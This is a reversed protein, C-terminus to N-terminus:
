SVARFKTARRRAIVTLFLLGLGLLAVTDPELVTNVKLHMNGMITEPTNRLYKKPGTNTLEGILTLSLIFPDTFDSASLPPILDIPNLQVTVDDTNTVSPPLYDQLNIAPTIPTGNAGDLLAMERLIIKRTVQDPLLDFDTITFNITADGIILNLPHGSFYMNLILEGTSVVGGTPDSPAYFSQSGLVNIDGGPIPSLSSNSYIDLTASKGDLPIIFDPATISIDYYIALVPKFPFLVAFSFIIIRLSKINMYNKKSRRYALTKVKSVSDNSLGGQSTPEGIM